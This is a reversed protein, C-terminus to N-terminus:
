IKIKKNTQFLATVKAGQPIENELKLLGGHKQCLLQASYLGIGFHNVEEKIQVFPKPGNKILELPFGVGDDQVSLSLQDEQIQIVLTIKSKAFRIANQILNETVQMILHYDVYITQKDPIILSYLITSNFLQITNEIEQKLLDSTIAEIKLPIQELKQIHSMAEIYHEIRLTYTELRKLAQVEQSNEEKSIKNRQLLKVTGKLVTVPNRLDHAFIANLRKREETERWLKQNTIWLNQRMEDFINCLLTLEDQYVFKKLKFDLNNNLIQEAGYQLTKLPENLKLRYFLHITLLMISIFTIIPLVIQLFEIIYALKVTEKSPEGIELNTITPPQTEFSMQFGTPAIRDRLQICGYFISFSISTALLLGILTMTFLAQKLNMKRIWDM